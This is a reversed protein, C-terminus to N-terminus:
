TPRAAARSSRLTGGNFNFAESVDNGNTGKVIQGALLTGGGITGNGLNFTTTPAGSTTQNTSMNLIPTTISGTGSLNVVGTGRVSMDFADNGANTVTLSGASINMTSNSGAANALDVSANTSVTGGTQNYIQTGTDLVIGYISSNAQLTGNVMNFTGANIDVTTNGTASVHHCEADTSGNRQRFNFTGGAM